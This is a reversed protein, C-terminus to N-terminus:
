IRRRLRYSKIMQLCSNLRQIRRNRNKIEDLDGQDPQNGRVERLQKDLEFSLKELEPRTMRQFTKETVLLYGERIQQAMGYASGGMFGAMAAMM